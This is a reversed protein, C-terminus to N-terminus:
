VSVGALPCFAFTLGPYLGTFDQPTIADAAWPLDGSAIVPAISKAPMIIVVPFGPLIALARYKQSLLPM